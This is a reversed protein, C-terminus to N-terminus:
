LFCLKFSIPHFRETIEDDPDAQDIGQDVQHEGLTKLLVKRTSAETM